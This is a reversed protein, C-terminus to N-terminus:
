SAERGNPDDWASSSDGTSAREASYRVFAARLARELHSTVSEILLATSTCRAMAASMVELEMRYDPRHFLIRDLWGNCRDMLRVSGSILLVAGVSVLPLSGTDPEVVPATTFVVVTVLISVTGWLVGRKVLVDFFLFREHYYVLGLLSPFLVLRLIVFTGLALPTWMESTHLWPTNIVLALWLVGLSLLWMTRTTAPLARRSSTMVKSNTRVRTENGQLWRTSQAVELSPMQEFLRSLLVVPGTFCMVTAVSGASGVIGDVSSEVDTVPAGTFLNWLLRGAMWLAFSSALGVQVIVTGIRWRSPPALVTKSTIKALLFAVFLAGSVVLATNGFASAATFARETARVAHVFADVAFCTFFLALALLSGCLFASEPGRRTRTWLSWTVAIAAIASLSYGAQALSWITGIDM